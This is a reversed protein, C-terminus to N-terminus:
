LDCLPDPLARAGRSGRQGAADSSSGERRPFADPLLSSPRASAYGLASNTCHLTAKAMDRRNGQAFRIALERLASHPTTIRVGEPDKTDGPVENFHLNQNVPGLAPGPLRM